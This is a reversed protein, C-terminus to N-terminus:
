EGDEWLPKWVVSLCLFGPSRALMTKMTNLVFVDRCGLDLIKCDMMMVSDWDLIGVEDESYNTRLHDRLRRASTCPGRIVVLDKCAKEVSALIFSIVINELRQSVLDQALWGLYNGLCCRAGARVDMARQEQEEQREEEM